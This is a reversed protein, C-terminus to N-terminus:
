RKLFTRLGIAIWSSIKLSGETVTVQMMSM